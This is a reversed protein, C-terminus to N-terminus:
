LAGKKFIRINKAGSSLSMQYTAALIFGQAQYDSCARNFSRISHYDDIVIYDPRMTKVMDVRAKGDGRTIQIVRAPPTNKELYYRYVYEPSGYDSDVLITSCADGRQHLFSVAASLDPREWRLEKIQQIGFVWIITLIATMFFPKVLSMENNYSFLEGMHVVGLAAAPALFVLSIFVATHIDGAKLSLFPILFAPSALVMLFFSNKGGKENFIGFTALLYPMALWGFVYEFRSSPIMGWGSLYLELTDQLAPWAPFAAFYGYLTMVVLLPMFFFLSGTFFRYRLFVFPVFLVAFVAAVYSTIAAAAFSLSAALLIFGQRKEWGSETNGEVLMLSLGAFFAAFVSANASASLQLPLGLFVFAAAAILGHRGHLTTNGTRCVVVVLVLCLIVGILRAGHIGAPIDALAMALPAIAVSGSYACMLGEIAGASTNLAPPPCSLTSGSMVHRGMFINKAEDPALPDKFLGWCMVALAYVLILATLLTDRHAKGTM